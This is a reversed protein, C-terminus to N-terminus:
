RRPRVPGFGPQDVAFRNKRALHLEVFNGAVRDGSDLAQGAIAEEV